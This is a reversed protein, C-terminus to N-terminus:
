RRRRSTQRRSAQKKSYAARLAEAPPKFNFYVTEVVGDLSVNMLRTFPSNGTSISVSTQYLSPPVEKEYIRAGARGDLTLMWRAGVSNLRELERYFAEFDFSEPHYRGRTGAYPPDLFVLDGAGVSDLTARYDVALFEIGSLMRSWCYVIESLRDPHIGPRTHHLSNNFEGRANFRILGNVCTRSLFFLDLPNKERNFRERVRYFVQHGESERQHWLRSYHNLVKDARNRIEIWLGVLEKITDGAVGDAVPRVPLMAGGGVFPEFYRAGAGAQPWLRCLIHAVARKSGSWKIVPQRTSTKM